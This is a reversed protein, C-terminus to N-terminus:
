FGVFSRVILTRCSCLAALDFPGFLGDCPDLCLPDWVGLKSPYGGMCGHMWVDM